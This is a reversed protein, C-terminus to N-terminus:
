YKSATVPVGEIAADNVFWAVPVSGENVLECPLGSKKTDFIKSLIAAKGAGEAVFAINGSNFLVPFTFTIRRPPPKPSDNLHAIRVSRESLLKHGPFLSCTHGDPGCGLLIVDLSEPLISEYDKAIESDTSGDDSLLSEKITFVKPLQQKKESLSKLVMENFLGYNSDEHDLPVLREDSFYVEWKSWQIKAYNESNAILGKNLVKGLSGGSIAIKFKDGKSLAANQHEIVYQAVSNAVDQSDAYSYVKVM